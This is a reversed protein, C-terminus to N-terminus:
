GEDPWRSGPPPFPLIDAHKQCAARMDRLFDAAGGQEFETLPTDWDMRAAWHFPKKTNLFAAGGPLTPMFMTRAKRKRTLLGQIRPDRMVEEFALTPEQGAPVLSENLMLLIDHPLYCGELRELVMLDDLNLGLPIVLVPRIGARQQVAQLRLKKAIECFKRISGFGIDMLVDIKHEKQFAFVKTIAKEFFADEANDPRMVLDAGFRATASANDRDFDCIGVPIRAALAHEAIFECALSKGARSRAVFVVFRPSAALVADACTEADPAERWKKAEPPKVEGFTSFLKALDAATTQVMPMEDGRSASKSTSASGDIRGVLPEGQAEDRAHKQTAGRKENTERTVM